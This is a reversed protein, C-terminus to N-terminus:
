GSSPCSWVHPSRVAFNASLDRAGGAGPCRCPARARRRQMPSRPATAARRGAQRPGFVAAGSLRPRRPRSQTDPSSRSVIVHTMMDGYRCPTAVTQTGEFAYRSPRTAPRRANWVGDDPHVRQRSPDPTHCAGQSSMGAHNEHARTSYRLLARTWTQRLPRHHFGPTAQVEHHWRPHGSAPPLSHRCGRTQPEQRGPEGSQRAVPLVRVPRGDPGPDPGCHDASEIGLGGRCAGSASRHRPSREWASSELVAPRPASGM